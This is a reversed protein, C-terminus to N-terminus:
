FDVCRFGIHSAASTEDSGIRAAPRYRRCYSDACLHSGGKLVRNRTQPMASTPACCNAKDPKPKGFSTTTWEWVNGLLHHLQNDTASLPRAPVTFPAASTRYNQTPFAGRWINMAAADNFTVNAAYEWQKESPLAKGVWKAYALADIYSVHVVPHLGRADLDSGQGEPHKWCAGAVFGWWQSPDDLRVPGDTMRFVLSGAGVFADPMNPQTAPDIPQESTTVYGTTSVFAAFDDNTVCAADMRFSPVEVLRTPAEEPYHRDSGMLFQGGTIQVMPVKAAKTGHAM